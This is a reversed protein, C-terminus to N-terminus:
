ERMSGWRVIYSEIKILDSIQCRDTTGCESLVKSTTYFSDTDTDFQVYHM